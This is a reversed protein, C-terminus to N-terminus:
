FGHLPGASMGSDSLRSISRDHNRNWRDGMRIDRGDFGFQCVSFDFTDLLLDLCRNYYMGILQVDITKDFKGENVHVTYTTNYKNKKENLINNVYPYANMMRCHEEYQKKSPFFIDIDCGNLPENNITRWVSGGAVWPGGGSLKPLHKLVRFLDSTPIHSFDALNLTKM